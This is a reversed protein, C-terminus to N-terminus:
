NQNLMVGHPQFSTLLLAYSKCCQVLGFIQKFTAHLFGDKINFNTSGYM